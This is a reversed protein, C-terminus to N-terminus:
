MFHFSLLGRTNILFLYIFVNPQITSVLYLLFTILFVASLLKLTHRLAVQIARYEEETFSRLPTLFHINTSQAFNKETEGLRKQAEGSRLLSVGPCLVDMIKVWKTKLCCQPPTALQQHTLYDSWKEKFRTNETFEREGYPTNSGIELGAQIM